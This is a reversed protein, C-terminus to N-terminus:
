RLTLSPGFTHKRLAARKGKKALRRQTRSLGAPPQETNWATWDPLGPTILEGIEDPWRDLVRQQIGDPTVTTLEAHGGVFYGDEYQHRQCELVLRMTEIVRDPTANVDIGMYGAACGIEHGVVPATVADPLRRLEYPQPVIPTQGAARLESLQEETIPAACTQIVYGESRSREASWGALLLEIEPPFFATYEDVIDELVNEIGAVMSDFTAYRWSLEQGIVATAFAPGRCAVLGPWAPVTFVKTGIGTVYGEADYMAGDTLVHVCSPQCVINIATM